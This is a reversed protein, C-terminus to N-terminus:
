FPCVLNSYSRNIKGTFHEYKSINLDVMNENGMSNRTVHKSRNRECSLLADCLTHCAIEEARIRLVWHRQRNRTLPENNRTM